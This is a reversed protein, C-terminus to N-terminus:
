YWGHAEHWALANLPDGYRRRVYWLLVRVQERWTEALRGAWRSPCPTSQPIGCSNQGTYGCDTHSPYVSCPNWGSEGSVIQDLADWEAGRWGYWSAALARAYGRPSSPRTTTVAVASGCLTLVLLCGVTM